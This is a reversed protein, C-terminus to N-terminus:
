TWPDHDDYGHSGLDAGFGGDDDYGGQHADGVDPPAVDTAVPHGVPDRHHDDDSALLDLGGSAGLLLGGGGGLVLGLAGARWPRAPRAVAPLVVGPDVAPEAALYVWGVARFAKKPIAVQVRRFESPAMGPHHQAVVDAYLDDAVMVALDCNRARALASRLEGSDVLRSAAVVATGVFGTAAVQVAGQSLAARLRMRGWSVTRNVQFLADRLGGILRVLVRSEDIGAPLLLLQGDGRDQRHDPAVGVGANACAYTMVQLLSRQVDVQDVTTHRSYGEIDVVLCLQRIAAPRTM